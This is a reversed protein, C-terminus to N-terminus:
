TKRRRCTDRDGRARGNRRLRGGPALEFVAERALRDPARKMSAFVEAFGHRDYYADATVRLSSLASLSMVLLAVGSAVVLAVALVQGRLRWLDRGTKTLLVAM